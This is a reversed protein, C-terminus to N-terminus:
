CCYSKWVNLSTLWKSLNCSERDICGSSTSNALQLNDQSFPPTLKVVTTSPQKELCIWRSLGNENTTHFTYLPNFPQRTVCNRLVDTPLSVVLMVLLIWDHESKYTLLKTKNLGNINMFLEIRLQNIQILLIIQRKFWM